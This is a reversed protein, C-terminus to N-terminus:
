ADRAKMGRLPRGDSRSGTGSVVMQLPEADL